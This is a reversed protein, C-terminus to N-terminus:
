KKVKKTKYDEIVMDKSLIGVGSDILGFAVNRSVDVLEGKNYRKTPKIIRVRM